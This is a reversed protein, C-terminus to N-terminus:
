GQGGAVLKLLNKRGFIERTYERSALRHSSLRHHGPVTMVQVLGLAEKPKRGGSGSWFAM